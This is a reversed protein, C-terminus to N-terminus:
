TWKPTESSERWLVLSCRGSKWDSVEELVKSVVEEEVESFKSDVELKLVVEEGEFLM